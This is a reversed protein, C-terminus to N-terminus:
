RPEHIQARHGDDVSERRWCPQMDQLLMERTDRCCVVLVRLSVDLLDESSDDVELYSLSQQEGSRSQQVRYFYPRSCCALQGLHWFQPKTIDLHSDSLPQSLITSPRSLNDSSYDFTFRIVLTPFVHKSTWGLKSTNIQRETIMLSRKCNAMTHPSASFLDFMIYNLVLLTVKSSDSFIRRAVFVSVKFGAYCPFACTM